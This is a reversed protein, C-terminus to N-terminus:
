QHQKKCGRVVCITTAALGISAFVILATYFVTSSLNACCTVFGLIITAFFGLIGWLGLNYCALTLLKNM